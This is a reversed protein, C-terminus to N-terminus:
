GKQQVGQRVFFQAVERGWFDAAAEVDAWKSLMTGLSKHGARSDVAAVLLRDAIGDRGEIEISASGVLAATDAALGGVTTLVRLQPVVTTITNLPVNAGKAQTLAARLEITQPGPHEAMLFREGLANYLAKYLIDTLLQQEADTLKVRDPSSAWLTVSELHIAHYQSWDVGPAIYMQLFDYGEVKALQSYDGLFGSPEAPSRRARVGTCGLSGVAVVALVTIIAAWRPRIFISLRM